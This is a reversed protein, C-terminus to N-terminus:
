YVKTKKVNVKRPECVATYRMTDGEPLPVSTNTNIRDAFYLCANIDAFYSTDIKNAGLYTILAFVLTM